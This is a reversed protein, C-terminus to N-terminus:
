ILRYLLYILVLTTLLQFALQISSKHDQFNRKLQDINDIRRDLRWQLYANRIRGDRPELGLEILTDFLKQTEKACNQLSRELSTVLSINANIQVEKVGEIFSAVCFLRNINTTLEYVADLDTHLDRLTGHVTRGNRYASRLAIVIPAAIQIVALSLGVISVPDAM